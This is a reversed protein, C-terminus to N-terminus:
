KCDSWTEHTESIFASGTIHSFKYQVQQLRRRLRTAEEEAQKM